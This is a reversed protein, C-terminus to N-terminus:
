RKRTISSRTAQSPRLAANAASAPLSRTPPPEYFRITFSDDDLAEEPTIYAHAVLPQLVSSALVVATLLFRFMM